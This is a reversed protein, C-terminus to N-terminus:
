LAEKPEHDYALWTKGYNHWAYGDFFDSEIDHKDPIYWERSVWKEKAVWYWKIFVPKGGRKKLQELTLPQPKEREQAERMCDLAINLTKIEKEEAEGIDQGDYAKIWKGIEKITEEYM